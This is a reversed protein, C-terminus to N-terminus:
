PVHHPAPAGAEAPAPGAQRAKGLLSQITAAKARVVAQAAVAETRRLEVETDKLV